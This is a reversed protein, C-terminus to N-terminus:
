ADVKQGYIMQMEGKHLVCKDRGTGGPTEGLIAAAWPESYWWKSWTQIQHPQKPTAKRLRSVQSSFIWTTQRWWWGKGVLGLNTLCPYSLLLLHEREWCSPVYGACTRLLELSVTGINATERAGSSPVTEQSPGTEAGEEVVGWWIIMVDGQERKERVM